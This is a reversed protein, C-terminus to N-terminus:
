LGAESFIQLQKQDVIEISGRSLKLWQKREFEKLTRSVVERASGLERAIEQHTMTILNLDTKILWRALRQDIRQFTISDILSLLDAIRHQFNRFVFSQLPACALLAQRFPTAPFLLAHVPAETIAEASYADHSLIAATTLICTEGQGVRYLVLERGNEAVKQVRISGNFVFAFFNCSEGQHFIYHEAPLKVEQAQKLLQDWAESQIDALEPFHQALLNM